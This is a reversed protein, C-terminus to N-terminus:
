PRIGRPPTRIWERPTIEKVPDKYDVNYDEAKFYEGKNLPMFGFRCDYIGMAEKETKPFKINKPVSYQKNHKIGRINTYITMIISDNPSKIFNIEYFKGYRIITVRSSIM